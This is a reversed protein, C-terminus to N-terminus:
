MFLVLIYQSILYNYWNNVKTIFAYTSHQSEREYIFPVKTMKYPSMINLVLVFVNDM